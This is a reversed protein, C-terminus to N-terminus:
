VTEDMVIEMPAETDDLTLYNGIAVVPIEVEGKDDFNLNMPGEMLPVLIKIQIDKGAKTQGIYTVNVHYDADVIQLDRTITKIGASDAVNVGSFLKELLASEMQVSTMELKPVVSEVVADGKMPGKKGMVEIHRVTYDDTYTGGRVYGIELVGVEDYDIYLKGEGLMITGYDAAM